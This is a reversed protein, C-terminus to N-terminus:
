LIARQPVVWALMATMAIGVAASALILGIAVMFVSDLTEVDATLRNIGDGHRLHRDESSMNGFPWTRIRTLLRMM